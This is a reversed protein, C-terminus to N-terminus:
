SGSLGREAAYLDVADGAPVENRYLQVVAQAPGKVAEITM